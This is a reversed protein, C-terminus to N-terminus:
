QQIEEDKKKSEEDEPMFEDAEQVGMNNISLIVCDDVNYADKAYGKQDMNEHFNNILANTMYILDDGKMVKNGLPRAIVTNLRKFFTTDRDNMRFTIEGAILFMEKIM